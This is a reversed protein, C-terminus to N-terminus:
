VLGPSSEQQQARKIAEKLAAHHLDAALHVPSKGGIPDWNAPDATCFFQTQLGMKELAQDVPLGRIAKAAQWTAGCPAGRVVKIDTITGNDVTLDFRPYGFLQGYEGCSVRPSLACCVPPTFAWGDKRNKGSAIVPIGLKQCMEDLDQSLDPHVLYDLVLDAEIHSPLYGSSDDIVPPLPHDVNLIQIDFCDNCIERIGKIKSEGRGKQQIVLIRAPRTKNKDTM